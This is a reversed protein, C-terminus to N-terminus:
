ETLEPWGAPDIAFRDLNVRVFWHLMMAADIEHESIKHRFNKGFRRFFKRATVDKSVSGKWTIATLLSWNRHDCGYRGAVFACIGALNVTHNQRASMHGRASDFFTPWETVLHDITPAVVQLEQLIHLCRMAYNKGEPRILGTTWRKTVTKGETDLLAWGCFNVSPDIALIRM